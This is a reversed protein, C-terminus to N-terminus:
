ICVYKDFLQYKLTYRDYAVPCNVKFNYVFVQRLHALQIFYKHSAHLRSSFIQRSVDSPGRVETHLSTPTRQTISVEQLDEIGDEEVAAVVVGGEGVLHAMVTVEEMDAEAEVMVVAVEETVEAEVVQLATVTTVAVATAVEM